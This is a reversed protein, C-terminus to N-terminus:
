DGVFHSLYARDGPLNEGEAVEKAYLEEIGKIEEKIVMPQAGCRCVHGRFVMIEKYQANLCDEMVKISALSGDIVSGQKLDWVWQELPPISNLKVKNDIPM